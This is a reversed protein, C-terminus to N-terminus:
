QQIFQRTRRITRPEILGFDRLGRYKRKQKKQVQQFARRVMQTHEGAAEGKGPDGFYRAAYMATSELSAASPPPAAQAVVMSVEPGEIGLRITVPGDIPVESVRKGGVYIGNSSGLDRVLWKGNEIVGEAQYRSVYENEIRLECDQARGIRFPREFRLDQRESPSQGTRVLLAPPPLVSPSQPAAM